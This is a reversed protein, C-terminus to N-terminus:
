LSDILYFHFHKIIYKWKDGYSKKEHNYSLIAIMYGRVYYGMCMDNSLVKSGQKKIQNHM